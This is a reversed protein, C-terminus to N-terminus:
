GGAGAIWRLRSYPRLVLRKRVYVFGLPLAANQKTGWL